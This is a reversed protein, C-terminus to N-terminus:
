RRFLLSIIFIISSILIFAPGTHFGYILSIIAGLVAAFIGFLASLLMFSKLSKSINKASAAPIIVLAGMLLAGVFRIGLAVVLAFAMLYAFELRKNKIGVSQSLEQSVMNLAIKKRMAVIFIILCISLLILILSEQWGITSIDGFLAEILEHDPTLIAGLALSASFFVGIITEISLSSKYELFWVGIVAFFLFIAAGWFPNLNLILALGIGPLAVHSLADGVLAMRKLIAFAGLLSAAAAVFASTLIFQLEM